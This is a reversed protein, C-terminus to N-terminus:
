LKQRYRHGSLPSGIPAGSETSWLRVSNDHYGGGSALIKGTHDFCVSLVEGIHGTLTFRASSSQGTMMQWIKKLTSKSATVNWIKVSRYSCSALKSGDPSFCVGLVDFSHGSLTSNVKGSQADWLKITTDDSGNALMTGDPSWSVARVAGSHGSLNLKCAGNSVQWIRVASDSSGSAVQKGDPSFCV